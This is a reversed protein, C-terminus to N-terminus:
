NDVSNLNQLQCLDVMNSEFEKQCSPNDCCLQDVRPKEIEEECIICKIKIM